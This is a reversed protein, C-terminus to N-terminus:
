ITAALYHELANIGVKVVIDQRQELGQLDGSFILSGRDLIWYHSSIKRILNFDHSVIMIHHKQRFEELIRYLQTKGRHGLGINPEDLILLQPSLALSLAIALRRLEGGSLEFGSKNKIVDFDLSFKQLYTCISDFVGTNMTNHSLIQQVTDGIHVGLLIKEPFQPSYIVKPVAPQGNTLFSVSGSVPEIIGALLKSFTTKGSGSLGYMGLVGNFSYDLDKIQLCFTSTKSFKYELNRINVMLDNLM